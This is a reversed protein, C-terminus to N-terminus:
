RQGFMKFFGSLREQFNNVNRSAVEDDIRVTNDTLKYATPLFHIARIYYEFNIFVPADVIIGLDM